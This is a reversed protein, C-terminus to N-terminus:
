KTRQMKRRDEQSVGKLFKEFKKKDSGPIYTTDSETVRWNHENPYVYIDRGALARDGSVNDEVLDDPNRYIRDYYMYKGGGISYIERNGLYHHRRYKGMSGGRQEKNIPSYLGNKRKNNLNQYDMPTNQDFRYKYPDDLNKSPDTQKNRFDNLPIRSKFNNPSTIHGIEHQPFTTKPGIFDAPKKINGYNIGSAPEMNINPLIGNVPVKYGTRSPQYNFIGNNNPLLQEKIRSLDREEDQIRNMAYRGSPIIGGAQRKRTIRRNHKGINARSEPTTTRLLNMWTNYNIRQGPKRFFETKGDRGITSYAILDEPDALDQIGSPAHSYRYDEAPYDKLIWNITTGYNPNGPIKNTYVYLRNPHTVPATVTVEPLKRSNFLRNELDEVDGGDRLLSANNRFVGAEMECPKCRGGKKLYGPQCKGQLQMIYKLKAGNAAKQTQKQQIIQVIAQAVAEPGQDAVKACEKIGEEGLMELIQQFGEKSPQQKSAKAILQYAQAFINMLQKQDNM